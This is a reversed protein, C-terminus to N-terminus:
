DLTNFPYMKLWKVWIELFVLAHFESDKIKQDPWALHNQCGPYYFPLYYARFVHVAPVKHRFRSTGAKRENRRQCRARVAANSSRSITNFSRAAALIGGTWLRFIRAKEM